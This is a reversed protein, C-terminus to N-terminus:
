FISWKTGRKEAREFMIRRKGDAVINLPFLFDEKPKRSSILGPM